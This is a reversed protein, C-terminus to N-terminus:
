RMFPADAALRAPRAGRVPVRCWRCSRGAASGRIRTDLTLRHTGPPVIVATLAIDTRLLPAEKEDLRARWGEDWTQGIALFSAGPGGARIEADISTPTGSARHSGECASPASPAGGSLGPDLVATRAAEPGLRRVAALWEEDGAATEVRPLCALFPLSDRPRLIELGGGEGGSGAAGALGARGASSASRRGERDCRRRPARPASRRARSGVDIGRLLPDDRPPELALESIDFDARADHRAGV